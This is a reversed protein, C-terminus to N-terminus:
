IRLMEHHRLDWIWDSGIPRIKKHQIKRLFWDEEVLDCGLPGPPHPVKLTSPFVARSMFPRM